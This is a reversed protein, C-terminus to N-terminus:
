IPGAGRPNADTDLRVLEAIMFVLILCRRRRVPFSVNVPGSTGHDRRSFAAGQSVQTDDPPIFTEAALM